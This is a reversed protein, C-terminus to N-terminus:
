PENETQADLAAPHRKRKLLRKRLRKEKKLLRPLLLDAVRMKRLSAIPDILHTTPLKAGREKMVLGVPLEMKDQLKIIKALLKAAPTILPGV